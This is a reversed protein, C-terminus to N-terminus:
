KTKKDKATDDDAEEYEDSGDDYDLGKLIVPSKGKGLFLLGFSTTIVEGGDRKGETAEQWSGDPNQSFVLFKAGELHWDYSGFKKLGTIIGAREMSYLYYYHWSNGRGPNEEVSFNKVIWELTKTAQQPMAGGKGNKANLESNTIYISAFGACTMSGYGKGEGRYGWSGDSAQTSIYHNHAKQLVDEPVEVGALIISRLGLVAFQTNSNDGPQEKKAAPKDDAKKDLNKANKDPHKGLKKVDGNPNNYTWMGNELQASVLYDRAEQLKNRYDKEHGKSNTMQLAIAILASEYTRKCPQKLLYAIAKEVAQDNDKVGTYKLAMVALATPGTGGNFSGDPKQQSKLYKIGAEIAKEIDENDVEKKNQKAQAAPVVLALALLVVLLYGWRKM